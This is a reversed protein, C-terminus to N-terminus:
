IEQNGRGLCEGSFGGSSEGAPFGQDAADRYTLSSVLTLLGPLRAGREQTSKETRADPAGPDVPTAFFGYRSRLPTGLHTWGTGEQMKALNM